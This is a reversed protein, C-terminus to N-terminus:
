VNKFLWPEALLFVFCLLLCCCPSFNVMIIMDLLNFQINAGASFPIMTHTMSIKAGNVKEMPSDHRRVLPTITIQRKGM